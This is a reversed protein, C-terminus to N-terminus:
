TILDKIIIIIIIIIIIGTVYKCNLAGFINSHSHYM